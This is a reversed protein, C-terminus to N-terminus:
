RQQQATSSPVPAVTVKVDSGQSTPPGQDTQSAQDPDEKKSFQDLAAWLNTPVQSAMAEEQQKILRELDDKHTELYKQEELYHMQAEKRKLELYTPPPGDTSSASSLGLLSSFFSSSVGKHSKGWEEVHKAKAEAEKKAYELPINKGQYANLIPRTDPPKYIAVSELFPIMAILGSDKPDGKWKPIIIANEPHTNYHELDSDLCVVKSLDRNLYSLDKVPQGNVSRTHERFLRHQIFFGYRDLKDLVPAATYSLQTTFIVVEYFQSIYALFYDVGPRKATRWGHQRDWTSTILLDDLSIVLTYPKGHPPPMPPPLLEPWVPESFFNFFDGFRQKTRTWRTSPIDEIRMRRKELMDLEDKDWERGMYVTYAGLGLLMMGWTLRLMYRRKKEGTTLPDKASKAGTVKPEEKKAEAPLFDLSPLESRNIKPENEVNQSGAQTPAHEANRKGDGPASSTPHPRPPNQSM